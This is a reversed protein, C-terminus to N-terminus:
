VNCISIFYTCGLECDDDHEMNMIHGLEHTATAGVSSESRGTDQTLGVSATASCMTGVFAIGITSGTLDIHSYTHTLPLCHTHCVKHLGTYLSM